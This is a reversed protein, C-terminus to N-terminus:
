LAYAESKVVAGLAYTRLAVNWKRLSIEVQIPRIYTIFSQSVQM